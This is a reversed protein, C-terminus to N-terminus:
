PSEGAAAAYRHSVGRPSAVSGTGADLELAPIKCREELDIALTPPAEEDSARAPVSAREERWVAWRAEARECATIM